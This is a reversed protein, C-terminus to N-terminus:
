HRIVDLIEVANRYTQAIKHIAESLTEGEASAMVQKGLGFPERYRVISAYWHGNPLFSLVVSPTSPDDVYHKVLRDILSELETM